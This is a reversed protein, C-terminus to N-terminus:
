VSNHKRHSEAQQAKTILSQFVTKDLLAQIRALQQQVKDILSQFQVWGYCETLPNLGKQQVKDILSQFGNSMVKYSEEWHEPQVKDILSQFM